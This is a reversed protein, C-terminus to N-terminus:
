EDRDFQNRRRLSTNGKFITTFQIHNYVQQNSTPSRDFECWIQNTTDKSAAVASLCYSGYSSSPMFLKIDTSYMLM